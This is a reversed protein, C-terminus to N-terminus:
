HYRSRCLMIEIYNFSFVLHWEFIHCIRYRDRNQTRKHTDIQSKECHAGFTIRFIPFDRAARADTSPICLAFWWNFRFYICTCLFCFIPVKKVVCHPKHPLTAIRQWLHDALIQLGRLNPCYLIFVIICSFDGFACLYFDKIVFIRHTSQVFDLNLITTIWTKRTADHLHRHQARRRECM